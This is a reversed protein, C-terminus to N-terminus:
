DSFTGAERERKMALGFRTMNMTDPRHAAHLHKSASFHHDLENVTVTL